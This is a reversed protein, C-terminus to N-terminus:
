VAYRGNALQQCTQTPFIDNTTAQALDALRMNTFFFSFIFLWKFKLTIAGYNLRNSLLRMNILM